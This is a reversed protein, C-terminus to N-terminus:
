SFRKSLQLSVQDRIRRIEHCSCTVIGDLSAGICPYETHFKFGTENVILHEHHANQTEAFYKRAEPENDNRYRTYKNSKTGSSPSSIKQTDTHCVDYCKSVAIPGARHLMWLPNPVQKETVILLNKYLEISYTEPLPWVKQQVMNEFKWWIYKNCYLWVSKCISITRPTRIRNKFCYANPYFWTWKRNSRRDQWNFFVAELNITHLDKLEEKTLPVEGVM